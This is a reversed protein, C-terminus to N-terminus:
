TCQLPQQFLIGSFGSLWSMGDPVQRSVVAFTEQAEALPIKGKLYYQATSADNQATDNFSPFVCIKQKPILKAIELRTGKTWFFAFLLLLEKENEVDLIKTIKNTQNKKKLSLTINQFIIEM